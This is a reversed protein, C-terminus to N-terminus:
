TPIQSTEVPQLQLMTTVPLPVEALPRLRM